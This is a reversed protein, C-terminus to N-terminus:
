LVVPFTHFKFVVKFWSILRCILNPGIESFTNSDVWAKSPRILPVVTVDKARLETIAPEIVYSNPIIFWKYITTCKGIKSVFIGLLAIYVKWIITGITAYSTRLSKSIYWDTRTQAELGASVAGTTWDSGYALRRM